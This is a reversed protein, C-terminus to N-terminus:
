EKYNCVLIYVFEDPKTFSKSVYKTFRATGETRYILNLVNNKPYLTLLVSSNDAESSYVDVVDDKSPLQEEDPTLYTIIGIGDCANFYLIVDLSDESYEILDGFMTYCGAKWRQVSIECKPQKAKKGYLDLETYEFLLKFFEQSSFLQLMDKIPGRLNDTELQDYYKQNAPGEIRWKLDQNGGRLEALIVSYFEPILYEELSIESTNEIHNQIKRKTSTDLYIENIWESVLLENPHPLITNEEFHYIEQIGSEMRDPEMDDCHFWGNITLRPYDLSTVEGVQHFSKNCVNFFVFQNNTPHIKRAVPFIPRNKEDTGFLELAGGMDATWEKASPWPSLYYVFAIKRNSLLDDHVLLYNGASYMSCSASISTLNFGTLEAMWPLVVIKLFEYFSKLHGCAFSPQDIMIQNFEYLDMQKHSWNCGVMEDILDTVCSENALFDQMVCLKFPKKFLSIKKHNKDDSEIWEDASNWNVKFNTKTM